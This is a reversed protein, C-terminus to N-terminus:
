VASVGLTLSGMLVLLLQEWPEWGIVDDHYASTHHLLCLMCCIMTWVM